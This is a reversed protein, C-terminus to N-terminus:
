SRHHDFASTIAGILDHAAVQFASGRLRVTAASCSRRAVTLPPGARAHRDPVAALRCPTTLPAPGVSFFELARGCHAPMTLDLWRGPLTLSAIFLKTALTLTAPALPLWALCCCDFPCTAPGCKFAM